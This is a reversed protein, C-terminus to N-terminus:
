KGQVGSNTLARQVATLLRVPGLLGSALLPSEKRWHRWTTFTIRQGDPKPKGEVFWKPIERIANANGGAGGPLGAPGFAYEEPLQEDGILRNPWLNTVRVELSNDGAKLADTIDLRYPPKWVLGLNRGNVLVEALVEIRGLDLFLRRSNASVGPPLTFTKRYSATGSFYKIGPDDHQHLSILKPLTVEAPAGLKPPFTVRWPGSIVMPDPLGSVRLSTSRGTGDRLQYEGNQWLLLGSSTPEAAAPAEPDPIAAALQRIREEGLAESILTLPTLDGEFHVFRINADPAGLGPHVTRGTHQGTKILQGNFYLSPTGNRYVVALHNWGSMPQPAVLVPAFLGRAREYVVVGDRGATLGASSHGEGYLLDGEPPHAVFCSANAGATGQASEPTFVGGGSIEIEPKIWVSLTFNNTVSPYSAAPTASFAETTVLAQGDHILSRLADATAPTRFVVFLSGSPGLRIPVRVRGNAAEYVLAPVIKGSVADWFEPRKGEVRFSAVIEESRRQHNTVFYIDTTDLRRHIFRIDRDPNRSTFQFDPTVGLKDLVARLPQSRFVRGKGVTRETENGNGWLEAVIRRLEAESSQANALGFSYLPPNGVLWMGQNVSERLKRALDLTMGQTPQLVLLRYSMGGQVVIRGDEVSARKVFAQPHIVDYDHGEAPPPNLPEKSVNDSNPMESPASEGNLYLLDGVFRGQRLLHQARAVYQLWPGAKEFWTNTRDFHFGWQGMTMGPVADPHPQQAYRHFIYRTLGLTYMLDGIAKTAYPHEQWKSDNPRGTFSEAGVVPKEWVHAISSTLKMSWGWQAGAQRLWFEGMPEDVLAGVQLEDFPGNAPGYPETYSKMGHQRCLAAFKGFYNDAILDAQARRLDWLFRETIEPSGVVRGTMAPMFNRLDYGRRKQFEQPFSPTWNQMGVEYSDILAGVLGKEALPGFAEYLGGFYKNFHFEMAEASFKDIELGLGADSSAVQTRGTPTHGIRLITWRGPPAPWSLKGSADMQKSIDLVQEPNISPGGASSPIQEQNRRRALNTKFTWDPVRSSGSLQFENIRRPQLVSLRFFKARAVPFNAILPVNPGAASGGGGPMAFDTVKRFAVGDDSCELTIPSQAAGGPGGPTGPLATQHILVSRAEYPDAFEFLLSAQQGSGAPTLDIGVTLDWDTLVHADVANYGVTASVIRMPQGEGPLSPYALVMADRYYDLKAYPKALTVEILRGGEVFAESWVLQQMARDPTVWPGGSSSWGPCNHMTFSMGLRKSESAAHRVLRLWEPSLTEVPGKPIGTGVDFMQVGGVGVRAMAELDRTIGDATVNGNMWHWWTHPRAADPPHQFAKELGLQQTNSVATQADLGRHTLLTLASGAASKIFTRRKMKDGPNCWPCEQAIVDELEAAEDM